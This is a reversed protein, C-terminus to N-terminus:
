HLLQGLWFALVAAAMTVVLCPLIFLGAGLEEHHAEIYKWIKMLFSRVLHDGAAPPIRGEHRLRRDSSPSADHWVGGGARMREISGGSLTGAAGTTDEYRLDGSLLVAPTAIGSHPHLPFLSGRKPAMDFHDVFVLPKTLEGIDSPSVLRAVPGHTRGSTRAVVGRNRSAPSRQLEPPVSTTSTM